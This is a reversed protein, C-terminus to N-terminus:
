AASGEMRVRVRGILAPGSQRRPDRSVHPAEIEELLPSGIVVIGALTLGRQALVEAAALLAARRTHGLRVVLIVQDVASLTPLADSPWRWRHLM